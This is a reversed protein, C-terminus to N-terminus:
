DIDMACRFGIVRYNTEKPSIGPNGPLACFRMSCRALFDNGGYCSGRVVKKRPDFALNTAANGPYAVFNSSTWEQVNGAMDYAGYPSKDGEFSGVPATTSGLNCRGREFINGWPWKRGDAGRAAKEWEQETPLRKGAWKAYASADHWSIGTVPHNGKEQPFEHSPRFKKYDANTVEYKDILFANVFPKHEPKEAALLLLRSTSERRAPDVPMNDADSDNDNGMLFEGEPVFVMEPHKELLKAAKVPITNSSATKAIDPKTNSGPADPRPPSFITEALKEITTPIENVNRAWAREIRVPGGALTHLRLTVGYQESWLAISGGLVHTASISKRLSSALSPSIEDVAIPTTLRALEAAEKAEILRLHPAVRRISDILWQTAITEANEVGIDNELRINAVVIRDDARAPLHSLAILAGALILKLARQRRAIPNRSKM